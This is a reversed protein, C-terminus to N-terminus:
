LLQWRGVVEYASGSEGLVSRVLVFDEARWEIDGAPLPNKRCDAKRLLTIHPVFPKPDFGFGAIRLKERLQDVLLTLEAPTEEPAAWVIRNHPWWGFRTLGIGFAPVRIEGALELLDDMREPGVEGLFALTLHITEMRTRRGGCIEHLCKGAMALEASAAASPWLAFFLRASAPKVHPERLPVEDRKEGSQAAKGGIGAPVGRAPVGESLSDPSFSITMAFPQNRMLSPPEGHGYPQYQRIEM